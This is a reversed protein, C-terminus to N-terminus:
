KSFEKFINNQKNIDIYMIERPKVLKLEERAVKELFELSDRKEIEEELVEIEKELKIVEQEEKMRREELEKMQMSQSILTKGLYFAILLLIFHKLQIGKRRKKRKM